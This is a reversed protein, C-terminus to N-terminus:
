RGTPEKRFPKDTDLRVWARRVYGLGSGNSFTSGRQRWQLQRPWSAPRAHVAEIHMIADTHQVGELTPDVVRYRTSEGNSGDNVAYHIRHRASPRLTAVSEFAKGVLDGHKADRVFINARCNLYQHQNLAEVDTTLNVDSWGNKHPVSYVDGDYGLCLIQPTLPLLILDGAAHLGFSRWCTRKDDLHWRNSLVAPDDSTVFPTSTRNRLLCIKLDDIAHMYQSFGRMAMIVAERIGLNFSEIESGFIAQVGHAMEVARRSAAETRMHQLLWFLRLFNRHEDNLQYSPSQIDVLTSGYEQETAQLASELLQDEGYFYDGSCQHKVAAREIIKRRDINFLNISLGKGDLTFPRLYCRPVFHQNKNTAM